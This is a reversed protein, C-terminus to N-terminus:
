QKSEKNPEPYVYQEAARIADDESDFKAMLGDQGPVGVWRNGYIAPGRLAVVWRGDNLRQPKLEQWKEDVPEFTDAPM